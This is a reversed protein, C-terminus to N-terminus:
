AVRTTMAVFRPDDRLSDWDTSSIAEQFAGKSAAAVAELLALARGPKGARAFSRAADVAVTAEGTRDFLLARVGGADDFMGQAHLTDGAFRLAGSEAVPGFERALDSIENYNKVLSLGRLLPELTPGAPFEHTRKRLLTFAADRQGAVDLAQARLVDDEVVPREISRLAEMAATPNEQLVSAWGILRRADDRLEPAAALQLVVSARGIAEEFQEAQMAREALVLQEKAETTRAGEEEDQREQTFLGRVSHYTGMAFIIAGFVIKAKLCYVALALGVLGSIVYALTRFRPGLIDRLLLGGDMPLVPMLNLIGWGFTVFLTQDYLVEWFPTLPGMLKVAVVIAGGLLFGAFPGAATVVINRGRPLRVGQISTTGGFSHLLIGPVAGFAKAALAHGLEHVLVALFVVGMTAVILGMSNHRAAILLAILWFASSVHVPIGFLRFQV